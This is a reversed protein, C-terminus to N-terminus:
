AIGATEAKPLMIWRSVVFTVPIAGLSALLPAYRSSLHLLDVLVYAGATTVVFNAANTLPFLLFKRLTPRTRYTFRANLFFSGTMSIVTALIHAVLYPFRPLLLLYAAYYTGTNVVGIVAFTLM